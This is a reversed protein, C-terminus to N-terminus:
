QQQLTQLEQSKNICTNTKNKFKEPVIKKIIKNIIKAFNIIQYEKQIKNQKSIKSIKKNPNKSLNLNPILLIPMKEVNDANNANNTSNFPRYSLKFIIIM